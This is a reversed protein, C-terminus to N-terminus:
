DKPFAVLDTRDVSAQWVRFWQWNLAELESGETKSVDEWIEQHRVELYFYFTFLYLFCFNARWSFREPALNELKLMLGIELMFNLAIFACKATRCTEFAFHLLEFSWTCLDLQERLKVLMTSPYTEIWYGSFSETRFRLGELSLKDLLWYKDSM